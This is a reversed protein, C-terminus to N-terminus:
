SYFGGGLLKEGEYLAVMQGSALARQPEHFVIEATGNDLPKFLITQSPDRYRPKALLQREELIPDGLFSLDKVLFRREYLGHAQASEFAVVLQNRLTRKGVVVYHEDDSNSPVGIGKRQGITYRHLGLHRGLKAGKADVIEGPCDPIFERLFENIKVKGLFCIGQSDKRAANPLGDKEAEKRVEAKTMGGLPFLVRDLRGGRVLALFYSQDKNKDAGEWLQVEGDEDVRRCYHGTAVRDFGVRLAYDLFVGFKIERNCMVDPNPTQGRSYGQVMYEVVKERYEDILNVVEFPIGMADAAKGADEVDQASPCDGWPFDEQMWSRIYVGSVEYGQRQLLLAAVSSDVGGSLGVLVKQSDGEM